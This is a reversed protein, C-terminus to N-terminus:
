GFFAKIVLAAKSQYLLSLVSYGFVLTVFANTRETKHEINVAPYFQFYQALGGFMRSKEIRDHNRVIPVIFGNGFLDVAIAIWVIAWRDPEDVHISAIWLGAPILITVVTLLLMGRIMPILYSLWIFYIAQFLRNALYFAILETYTSVFASEINTTFGFLCAMFFLICIRQFIDDSEFWSIIMTAEGWLKWSLIFTVAFELLQHGTPHHAATNGLVDLIGVYLLDLFLEFPAVEEAASARWIFGKHFYQRVNPKRWLKMAEAKHRDDDKGLPM